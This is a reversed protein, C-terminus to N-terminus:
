ECTLTPHSYSNSTRLHGSRWCFNLQLVSSLWNFEKAIRMQCTHSSKRTHRIAAVMCCCLWIMSWSSRQRMTLTTFSEWDCLGSVWLPFSVWQVRTCFGWLLVRFFCRFCVCSVSEGRRSVCSAWGVPLQPCYAGVHIKGSVLLHQPLANFNSAVVGLDELIDTVMATFKTYSQPEKVHVQDSHDRAVVIKLLLWKELQRYHLVGFLAM